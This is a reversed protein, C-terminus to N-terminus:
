YICVLISLSCVDDRSELLNNGGFARRPWRYALLLTNQDITHNSRTTQGDQGIETKLFQTRTKPLTCHDLLFQDPLDLVKTIANWLKSFGEFSGPSRKM